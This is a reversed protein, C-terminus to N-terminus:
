RCMWYNNISEYAAYGDAGNQGTPTGDGNAGNKNFSTSGSLDNQCAMISIYGGGGGGTSGGGSAGVAGVASFTISGSGQGTLQRTVMSISGGGGGSYGSGGTGGAVLAGGFSTIRNAMVFIIGGGNGFGNGPAGTGVGGGGFILRPQYSGGGGSTIAQGGQVSGGTGANGGNGYGGGGSAGAADSTGGSDNTVTASPARRDGGGNPITNSGGPYGAADASIRLSPSGLNLTGNVRLAVIGGGSGAYDFSSTSIQGGELDLNHYHPVQVMQVYCFNASDASNSLNATGLVDLFTGKSLRLGSGIHLLRAFGYTGVSIPHGQYSGCDNGSSAGSVLALIEKGVVFGSTNGVSVETYVPNVTLNNIRQTAGGLNSFNISSNPTYDTTGWGFHDLAGCSGSLCGGETPRGIYQKVSGILRYACASFGYNYYNSNTMGHGSFAFTEPSGSTTLTEGALTYGEQAMSECNRDRGGGGGNGNNIQFWIETAHLTSAAGPLYDWKLNWVPNSPNTLDIEGTLFARHLDLPRMSRYPVNFGAFGEEDDSNFHHFLLSTGADLMAQTCTAGSSAFVGFPESNGGGAVRIDTVAGSSANWKLPTTMTSDFLGPVGEVQNVFCVRKSTAPLNFYGLYSHTEPSIRIESSDGRNERRASVPKIVKLLKASPSLFASSANFSNFIITGDAMVYRFGATASDIAFAQFWGNVMYSREITVAPKGNPPLFQAIMVGTPGSDPTENTLYRGAVRVMINSSGANDATIAVSTEGKVNATADGYLFKMAGNTQSEYVALVQIFFGDGTPIDAIEVTIPQGMIITPGDKYEVERVIPGKGPVKVNVIVISLHDNADLGGQGNNIGISVSLKPSIGGRSCSIASLLFFFLILFGRM